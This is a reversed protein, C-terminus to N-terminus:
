NPYKPYEGLYFGPQIQRAHIERLEQRWRAKESATLEFFVTTSSSAGGLYYGGFVEEDTDWARRVKGTSQSKSTARSASGRLSTSIGVEFLRSAGYVM